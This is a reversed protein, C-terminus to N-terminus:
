WVLSGGFIFNQLRKHAIPGPLREYDGDSVYAADFYLVHQYNFRLGLSFRDGNFDYVFHTYNSMPIAGGVMFFVPDAWGEARNYEYNYGGFRARALEDTGNYSFRYNRAGFNTGVGIWAVPVGAEVWVSHYGSQSDTCFNGGFTVNGPVQYKSNVYVPEKIDYRDQNGFTKDIGIEFGEFAGYTLKLSTDYYSEDAFKVDNVNYLDFPIVHVSVASKGPEMVGPSPVLIAGSNGTLSIGQRPYKRDNLLPRLGEPIRTDPPLDLGEQQRANDGLTVLKTGRYSADADDAIRRVPKIRPEQAPLLSAAAPGRYRPQSQPQPTGKLFNQFASLDLAWGASGAPALVLGLGLILVLAVSSRRTLIMPAKDVLTCAKRLFRRMSLWSVREGAVTEMEGHTMAGPHM